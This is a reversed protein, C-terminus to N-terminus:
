RVQNTDIFGREEEKKVDECKGEQDFFCEWVKM